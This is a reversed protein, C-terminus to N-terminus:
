AALHGRRFCQEPLLQTLPWAPQFKTTLVRDVRIYDVKEAAISAQHDLNVPPRVVCGRNRRSVGPPIVRKSGAAKRQQPKRCALNQAVRDARDGGNQPPRPAAEM